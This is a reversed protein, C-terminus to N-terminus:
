SAREILYPSAIIAVGFLWLIVLVFALHLDFFGRRRPKDVGRAESPGFRAGTGKGEPAREVVSSKPV